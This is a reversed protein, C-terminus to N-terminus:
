ATEPNKFVVYYLVMNGNVNNQLINAQACITTRNPMWVGSFQPTFQSNGANVYFTVGSSPWYASNVPIGGANNSAYVMNAYFQPQYGLDAITVTAYYVTESVANMRNMGVVGYTFLDLNKYRSDLLYPVAVNDVDVGPHSIYVGPEGTTVHPGIRTRKAM